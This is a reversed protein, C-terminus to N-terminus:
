RRGCSARPTDDTGSTVRIILSYLDGLERRVEDLSTRGRMGAVVLESWRAVVKDHHDRLFDAMREGTGGVDM